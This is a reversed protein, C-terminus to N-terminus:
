IAPTFVGLGQSEDPTPARWVGYVDLDAEHPCEYSTSTWGAIGEWVWLGRGIPLPAFPPEAICEFDDCDFVGGAVALVHAHKGDHWVLAAAPKWKKRRDAEYADIDERTLDHDAPSSM